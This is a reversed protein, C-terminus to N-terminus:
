VGRSVMAFGIPPILMGLEPGVPDANRFPFCGGKPQPAVNRPKVDSGSGDSFPDKPGKVDSGSEDSFPDKPAKVDSGSGDSIPMADADSM